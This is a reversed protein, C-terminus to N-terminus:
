TFLIEPTAPSKNAKGCILFASPVSIGCQWNRTASCATPKLFFSNGCPMWSPLDTNIAFLASLRKITVAWDADRNNDVYAKAGVAPLKNTADNYNTLNKGVVVQGYCNALHNIYNAYVGTLDVESFDVSEFVVKCTM